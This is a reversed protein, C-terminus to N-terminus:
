GTEDQPSTAVTVLLQPLPGLPIAQRTTLAGASATPLAIVEPVSDATWLMASDIALAASLMSCVSVEIQISTLVGDSVPLPDGTVAMWFPIWHIVTATATTQTIAAAARIAIRRRPSGKEDM